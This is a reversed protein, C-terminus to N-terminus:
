VSKQNTARAGYIHMPMYLCQADQLLDTVGPFADDVCLQVVEWEFGDDIAAAFEPAVLKIKHLSLCGDETLAENDHPVGFLVMKCAMSSHSKSISLLKTEEAAFRPLAGSSDDVLKNNFDAVKRYRKHGEPPMETALPIGIELKSFAYKAFTNIQNRAHKVQIGDGYRNKENVAVFRSSLQMKVLLGHAILLSRLEDRLAFIPPMAMERYSRMIEKLRPAIVALREASSTRFAMNKARARVVTLRWLTVVSSGVCSRVVHM